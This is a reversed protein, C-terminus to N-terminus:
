IIIFARQIGDNKICQKIKMNKSEKAIKTVKEDFSSLDDRSINYKKMKANIEKTKSLIQKILKINEDDVETNPFQVQLEKVREKMPSNENTIETLANMQSFNLQPTYQSIIKRNFDIRKKLYLSIMNFYKKMIHGVNSSHHRQKKYLKKKIRKM